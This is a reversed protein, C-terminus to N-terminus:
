KLVLSSISDQDLQFTLCHALLLILSSISDQDQQFTLCRSFTPNAHYPHFCVIQIKEEIPYPAAAFNETKTENPPPIPLMKKINSPSPCCVWQRYRTALPIVVGSSSDIHKCRPWRCLWFELHVPFWGSPHQMKQMKLAPTNCKNLRTKSRSNKKLRM